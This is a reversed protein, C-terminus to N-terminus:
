EKKVTAFINTRLILETIYGFYFRGKSPTCINCYNISQSHKVQVKFDKQRVPQRFNLLWTSPPCAVHCGKM